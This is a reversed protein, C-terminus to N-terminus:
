FRNRGNASIPGHALHRHHPLVAAGAVLQDDLAHLRWGAAADAVLALELRVLHAASGLKGTRSALVTVASM